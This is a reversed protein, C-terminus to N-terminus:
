VATHPRNRRERILTGVAALGVVLGVLILGKAPWPAASARFRVVAGAAGAHFRVSLSGESVLDRPVTTLYARFERDVPLHLGTPLALATGTATGEWVFDGGVEEIRLGYSRAGEVPEWRFTTGSAGVTEGEVPRTFGESSGSRDPGLGDVPVPPLLMVLLLGMAAMATAAATLSAVLAKGHGTRRRAPARTPLSLSGDALGSAIDQEVAARLRCADCIRLHESRRKREEDTAGPAAGRWLERGIVPEVCEYGYPENIRNNM